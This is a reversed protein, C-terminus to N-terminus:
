LKLLDLCQSTPQSAGFARTCAPACFGCIFGPLHCHTSAVPSHWAGLSTLGALTASPTILLCCSPLQQTGGATLLPTPAATSAPSVTGDDNGASPAAAGAVQGEATSVTQLQTEHCDEIEFAVTADVDQEAADQLVACCTLCDAEACGLSTPMCM